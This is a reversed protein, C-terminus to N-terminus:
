VIWRDENVIEKVDDGDFIVKWIGGDGVNLEYASFGFSIKFLSLSIM